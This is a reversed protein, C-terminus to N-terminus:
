PTRGGLKNSIENLLEIEKNQRATEEQREKKDTEKQKADKQSKKWDKITEGITKSELGSGLTFATNLGGLAHGIIGGENALKLRSDEVDEALTNRRDRHKKARKIHTQQHKFTDKIESNIQNNLENTLNQYYDAGTGAKSEDVKKAAKKFAKIQSGKLGAAELEDNVLGNLSLKTAISSSAQSIKIKQILEGTKQEGLANTVNLVSNLDDREEKDSLAMNANHGKLIGQGLKRLQKSPDAIYNAVAKGVRSEKIKGVGGKIKDGAWGVGAGMVAGLPTRKFVATGARAAGLTLRGAGALASSVDKRNKEGTEQADAAGILSSVTAIFAKITVLGVIIVLTQALYDAIGINFFKIENMYPLILLFINMGVVAGYTMLVQKLFNERWKKAADGKDLPALGFLPPAVLFLGICMFLRTILGLIINIFLSACVLIAGFGVIFNFQWLDYYYWVLGVNFKSFSKVNKTLFNTFYRSSAWAGGYDYNLTYASILHLNCAFATDIMDALLTQGDAVSNDDARKFLSMSSGSGGTYIPNTVDMQGLRARNANYAAVKFVSGSFPQQTSAIKALEAAKFGSLLWEVNDQGYYIDSQYGFIDYYIYTTEDKLGLINQDASGRATKTSILMNTKEGYMQEINGTTISTMSDLATLIAQSLYLGLIVIIPVVAINLLAKLGTYIIPMPGKASDEDYSYHAKILKIFVSIFCIIVGFLIMSWFVTSLASYQFGNENIGLIGTIFSTVLDGAVTITQGDQEVYFVDLGALKRFFLQLVDIVCSFSAYLLYMIKPILDFMSKFFDSIWDFMGLLMSQVFKKRRYKRNKRMKVFLFVNQLM